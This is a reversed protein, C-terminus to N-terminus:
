KLSKKIRKFVNFNKNRQNSKETKGTNFSSEQHVHYCRYAQSIFM